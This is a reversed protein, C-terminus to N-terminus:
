HFFLLKNNSILDTCSKQLLPRWFDIAGIGRFGIPLVAQVHIISEFM